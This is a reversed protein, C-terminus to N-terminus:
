ARAEPARLPARCKRARAGSRSTAVTGHSAPLLSPEAAGPSTATTVEPVLRASDDESSGSPGSRDRKGLLSPPDSRATPAASLESGELLRSLSMAIPSSAAAWQGPRRRTPQRASGRSGAPSPLPRARGAGAPRPHGPMHLVQDGVLRSSQTLRVSCPQTGCLSAPLLPVVYRPPLATAFPNHARPTAFPDTPVPTAFGGAAALMGGCAGGSPLLRPTSLPSSLTFVPQTRPTCPDGPPQVPAPRAPTRPLAAKAKAAPSSVPSEGCHSVQPQSEEEASAHLQENCHLAVAPSAVEASPAPRLQLRGQWPQQSGQVQWAQQFLQQGGQAQWAELQQRTSCSRDSTATAAAQSFRSALARRCCHAAGACLPQAPQADGLKGPALAAAGPCAAGSM